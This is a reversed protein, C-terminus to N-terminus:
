NDVKLLKAKIVQVKQEEGISVLRPPLLLKSSDKIPIDDVIDSKSFLEPFEEGTRLEYTDIFDAMVHSIKDRLLVSPLSPIPHGCFSCVDINMYYKKIVENLDEVIANIAKDETKVQILRILERCKFIFYIFQNFVNDCEHPNM